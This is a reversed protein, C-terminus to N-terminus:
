GSGSFCMKSLMSTVLRIELASEEIAHSVYLFLTKSPPPCSNKVCRGKVVLACM